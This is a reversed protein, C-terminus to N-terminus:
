CPATPPEDHGDGHEDSAPCFGCSYPNDPCCECPRLLDGYAINLMALVLLILTVPRVM